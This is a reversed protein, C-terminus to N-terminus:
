KNLTCTDTTCANNYGCTEGIYVLMDARANQIYEQLPDVVTNTM